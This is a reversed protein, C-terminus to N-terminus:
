GLDALRKQGYLCFECQAHAEPIPASVIERIRKLVQYGREPVLDLAVLETNFRANGQDYNEPWFFLLYGTEAPALNNKLFLLAYLDLQTRYHEHTDEKNPYGRTKFDFVVYKGSQDVLLEDIAGSLLIDLEPFESKLGGRGFNSERWIKLKSMDNFLRAGPIKGAIEPPLEGKLRYIDFYKKFANDMGDPLSPFIGRPRPVAENAFLWLCRPCESLYSIGSPSVRLM